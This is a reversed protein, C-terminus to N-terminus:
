PFRKRLHPGLKISVKLPVLRWIKSFLKRKFSFKSVNQITHTKNFYFQSYITRVEPNGWKDKFNFSGTQLESRGFDFIKYNNKCGYQMIDWTLLGNPSLKRYHRDTVAWASLIRTKHFLLFKAGIVKGDLIAAQITSEDPFEQLIHNFFEYSHVASGFYKNSLTYLHYFDKLYCKNMEVTIGSQIAKNVLRRASKSTNHWLFEADCDLGILFTSRPSESVLFNETLPELNRIEFYNLNENKIISIASKLLLASTAQDNALLGGYPAFPVSVLRNTVNFFPLVGSIEDNKKAILYYPSLGYSREVVNKWGIQHFLTSKESNLVFKDWFEKESNQFREVLIKM